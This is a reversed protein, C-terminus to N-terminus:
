SSQRHAVPYPITPVPEDVKGIEEQERRQLQLLVLKPDRLALLRNNANTEVAGFRRTLTNTPRNQSRQCVGGGQLRVFEALRKYKLALLSLARKRNPDVTTEAIIQAEAALRQLRATKGTPEEDSL